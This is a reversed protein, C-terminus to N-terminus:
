HPVTPRVDQKQPGDAKVANLAGEVRRLTALSLWPGPLEGDHRSQWKEVEASFTEALLQAEGKAAKRKFGEVAKKAYEAQAVFDNEMGRLEPAHRAIMKAEESRRARRRVINARGEHVLAGLAVVGMAEFMAIPTWGLSTAGACLAFAVYSTRHLDPLKM